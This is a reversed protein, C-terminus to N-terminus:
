LHELLWKINKELYIKINDDTTYPYIRLLNIIQLIEYYDVRHNEVLWDDIYKMGLKIKTLDVINNVMNLSWHLHTDQRLKVIDITPSEIYSDLFDILYIDESFIMNSLTMDGHCLGVKVKVSELNSLIPLLDINIPISTIKDKLIEIPLDIEGIIREELYGDIRNILNDLDRKTASTFFQSFSEGNIYDMIFSSETIDSVSPTKFFNSKFNKQKNASIVLRSDTDKASKIVQNNNLKLNYNSYGRVKFDM